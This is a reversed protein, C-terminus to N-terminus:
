FRLRPHRSHKKSLESHRSETRMASPKLINSPPEQQVHQVKPWLTATLRVKLFTTTCLLESCFTPASVDKLEIIPDNNINMLEHEVPSVTSSSQM